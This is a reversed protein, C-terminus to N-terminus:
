GFSRDRHFRAFPGTIALTLGDGQINAYLTKADPSSVIGAFEADSKANRAFFSTRGGPTVSVLHSSGDGDEALFLGGYPSVTINDPGDPSGDFDTARALRVELRLASLAPDYSWVQGDHEGGSWDVNGHAFSTVIWAKGDAWWAGEFKKARTVPGATTTVRGTRGSANWTDYSFQKRTSTASALPDPVPKWDATLTTGPETSVSLTGPGRLDGYRTPRTAPVFRYLLGNPSSACNRVTGAVNM